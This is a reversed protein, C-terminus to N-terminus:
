RNRLDRLISAHAMRSSLWLPLLASTAALLFCWHFAQIAPQRLAPNDLAGVGKLALMLNLLLSLLAVGFGFGMQRNINWLASADALHRKETHLFATSQATCSCLSGGFGMCAFAIFMLPLQEAQDISTLLLMGMGQTLCGCIFLLRPGIRNFIKGTLTIAIFAAISWPIMLLGVQSASMGLITQLYLMTIMSVGIFIGPIFLYVLMSIRMLPEKILRLNLIPHSHAMSHRIFGRLMILGLVVLVAGSIGHEPGSIRSLGLLLLILAASGSCLGAIDLPSQETKKEEPKLWMVALTLALLAIPLNLYFIWRWGLTDVILGGVAPSLAPALLGVLMIISSLGAREDPRYHQYTLTQGIPILLGGGFGQLVRWVILLEISGATGAAVTALSFLLLSFLFTRRAGVTKALWASLPIVLTLGLIYGTSVWALQSVSAHLSRAIDPYAVNAIFMNILDVFFGLLYVIAVKTRYAM